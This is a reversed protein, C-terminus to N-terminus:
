IVGPEPPGGPGGSGFFFPLAHICFRRFRDFQEPSEDCRRRGRAVFAARGVQQEGKKLLAARRGFPQVVVDEGAGCVEVRRAGGEQQVRVVVRHARRGGIRAVREGRGDFAVTQVTQAAVVGSSRDHREGPREQGEAFLRQGEVEQQGKRGLLLAHAFVAHAGQKRLQSRDVHREDAFRRAHLGGDALPSQHDEVAFGAAFAAMRRAVLAYIREIDCEVVDRPEAAEAEVAYGFQQSRDADGDRLDRGAGLVVDHGVRAAEDDIQARGVGVGVLLRDFDQAACQAGM